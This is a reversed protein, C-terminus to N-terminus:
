YNIISFCVVWGITLYARLRPNANSLTGIIFGNTVVKAIPQFHLNYSYFRRLTYVDLSM